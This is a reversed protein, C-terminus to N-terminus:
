LINYGLIYFVEYGGSHSGLIRCTVYPKLAACLHGFFTTDHLSFLWSNRPLTRNYVCSLLNIFFLFQQLTNKCIVKQQTASTSTIIIYSNFTCPFTQIHTTHISSLYLLCVLHQTSYGRLFYVRWRLTHTLVVCISIFPFARRSCYSWMLIDFYMNHLYLFVLFTLIRWLKVDTDLAGHLNAFNRPLIFCIYIHLSTSSNNRDDCWYILSTTV